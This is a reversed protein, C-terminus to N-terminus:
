APSFDNFFNYDRDRVKTYDVSVRMANDMFMSTALTSCIAIGM